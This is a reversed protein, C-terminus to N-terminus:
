RALGRTKVLARVASRDGVPIDALVDGYKRHRNQHAACYRTRGWQNVRCRLRDCGEVYCADGPLADYTTQTRM